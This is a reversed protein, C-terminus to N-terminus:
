IRTTINSTIEYTEEDIKRLEEDKRRYIFRTCSVMLISIGIMLFVLLNMLKSQNSAIALLILSIINFFLVLISTSLSEPLPHMIEALSEYFLPFTAGFFFGTISLLIGISVSSSPLLPKNPWIITRVSLQFLLCFIFCLSLSILILLKFSRQFRPHDAIYGM